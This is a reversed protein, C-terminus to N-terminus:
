AHLLKHFKLLSNSFRFFFLCHAFRHLYFCFSGIFAHSVLTFPSTYDDLIHLFLCLFIRHKQIYLLLISCRPTLIRGSDGYLLFYLIMKFLNKYMFVLNRYINLIIISFIVVLHSCLDKYSCSHTNTSTYSKIYM